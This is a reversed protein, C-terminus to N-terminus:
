YKKDGYIKNLNQIFVEYSYKSSAYQYAIFIKQTNNYENKIYNKIKLALDIENGTKFLTFYKGNVSLEKMVPIDSALVPKKNLLAEIVAIGFTESKSSYVFLDCFSIYKAADPLANLYFVRKDLDISLTERICEKAFDNLRGIFVLKLNQYEGKIRNFAKVITLQDKEKRFNGIMMIVFDDPSYNIKQKFYKEEVKTVKSPPVVANYLVVIKREPYGLTILHNKVAQSVAIIKCIFSLLIKELYYGTNKETNILHVSHYVHIGPILFKLIAAYVLEIEQHTHIIKIKNLKVLRYLKLIVTLDLFRRRAWLFFQNNPNNLQKVLSGAKILVLYIKFYHQKNNYLNLLLAETGGADFSSRIHLIKIM